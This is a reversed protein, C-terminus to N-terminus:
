PTDIVFVTTQSAANISHIRENWQLRSIKLAHRSLSLHM